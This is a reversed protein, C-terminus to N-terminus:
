DRAARGRVREIAVIIGKNQGPGHYRATIRANKRNWVLTHERPAWRVDVHGKSSWPRETHVDPNGYTRRLWATMSETGSENMRYREMFSDPPPQHNIEITIKDLKDEFFSLSVTSVRDGTVEIKRLSRKAITCVRTTGQIRTPLRRDSPCALGYKKQIIRYPENLRLKDFGVAEIASENACAIESLVFIGSVLKRLM